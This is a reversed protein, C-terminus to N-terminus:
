DCMDAIKITAVPIREGVKIGSIVTPSKIIVETKVTKTLLQALTKNDAM